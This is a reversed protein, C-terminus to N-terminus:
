RDRRKVKFQQRQDLETYYINIADSAKISLHRAMVDWDMGAVRLDYVRECLPKDRNTPRKKEMPRRRFGLRHAIGVVSRESICYEEALDKVDDGRKYRQALAIQQGRPLIEATM